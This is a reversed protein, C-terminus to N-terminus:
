WGRIEDTLSRPCHQFFITALCTRRMGMSLVCYTSLLFLNTESEEKLWMLHGEVFFLLCVFSACGVSRGQPYLEWFFSVFM